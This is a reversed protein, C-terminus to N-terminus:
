LCENKHGAKESPLIFERLQLNTDIMILTAVDADIDRIDCPISKLRALQSEWTRRHGAIIEYEFDKDQVTRVIITEIVGGSKISESLEKM